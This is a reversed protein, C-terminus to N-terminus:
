GAPVASVTATIEAKDGILNGGAELAQNWSVDFDTPPLAGRLTLGIRESGWPDRGRGDVSADLAIERTIGRITLNGTVKFTGDGAPEVKTSEFTIEPHNEVDFFDASRLHEDRKPANTDISAAKIVARASVNWDEDATFTGEFERFQGTVTTVM